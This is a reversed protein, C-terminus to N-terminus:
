PRVDDGKNCSVWRMPIPERGTRQRCVDASAPRWVKLHEMYELEDRMAKYIGEKDLALGTYEDRYEFGERPQFVWEVQMEPEDFHVGTELSHIM